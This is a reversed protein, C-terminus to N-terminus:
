QDLSISQSCQSTIYHNQGFLQGTLDLKVLTLRSDRISTLYINGHLDITMDHSVSDM